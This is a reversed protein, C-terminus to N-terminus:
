EADPDSDLPCTDSDEDTADESRYTKAWSWAQESLTAEARSTLGKKDGDVEHRMYLENTNRMGIGVEGEGELMVICGTGLCSSVSLGLSALVLMLEKVIAGYDM